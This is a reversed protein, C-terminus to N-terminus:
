TGPVNQNLPNEETNFYKTKESQKKNLDNNQDEKLKVDMEQNSEPKM